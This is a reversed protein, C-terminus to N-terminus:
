RYGFGLRDTAYRWEIREQELRVNAGWRHQLLGQYVDQEHARLNMLEGTAQEPENGWLPKHHLLTAEDMLVTEIHPVYVRARNVIAFGHTDLDGWYLCSSDQLWQVSALLDVHYGLRMIVITDDTDAFALGTQLNEVVLTRSSRLSSSALEETSLSLDTLGRFEERLRPDLLRLRILSPPRRLGCLTFFDRTETNGTAAAVMPALVNTRGEIWKSDLGAIPLQRPFIHSRPNTRIWEVFMLARALDHDTYTALMETLRHLVDALYPFQAVIEKYRQTVLAWRTAKEAWKAVEEPSNLLLREPLNQVGLVRWKRQAWIVEGAPLSANWSQAWQRTADQRALADSEAPINLPISLPWEDASCPNILWNSEQNAYKRELVKAIDHRHKM